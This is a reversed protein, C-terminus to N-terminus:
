STAGSRGFVVVQWTGAHAGFSKVFGAAGLREEVLGTDHIFTRFPTRKMRMVLNIMRSGLRNYWVSKPYVLGVVEKAHSAAHDVLPLIDDYCCLVRDLTVVDAEAVSPAIEVFDGFHQTIRNTTGRRKSEEQAKALYSRSADVGVGSTGDISLFEHQIAGIGGGIDLFTFTETAVNDRVADLLM